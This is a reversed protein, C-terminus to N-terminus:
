VLCRDTASHPRKELIRRQSEPINCIVARFKGNASRPIEHVAELVVDVKGMRDQLRSVISLGVDPTFAQTPVYRIRVRNLAEQIIQAGRIPLKAKFVPDLRGVRRGDITYLLDDARGELSAILPLKRGCGCSVSSEGLAGSDGLRYRILPMNNNLLGTCVFHGAGDNLPLDGIQLVEVCGVEPWLHLRGHECVSAATLM